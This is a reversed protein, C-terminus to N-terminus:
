GDLGNIFGVEGFREARVVQGAQLRIAQPKRSSSCKKLLSGGGEASNRSSGEKETHKKQSAVFATEELM